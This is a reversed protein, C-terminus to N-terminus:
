TLFSCSSAHHAAFMGVPLAHLTLHEIREMADALEAFFGDTAKDMESLCLRTVQVNICQALSKKAIEAALEETLEDDSLDSNLLDLRCIITLFEKHFAPELSAVALFRDDSTRYVNYNHLERPYAFGGELPEKETYLAMSSLVNLSSLASDLMAIDLYQGSGTRDRQYIASLISIVALMGSMYDSIPIPPLIPREGNRRSLNLIGSEAILNLDHAARHRDESEQGYGSISCYILRDNLEKTKEYDLGLREMVGPRFNQVLVDATGILKKLINKGEEAKLDICVSKKNRNNNLYAASIGSRQTSVIRTYDGVSTNEIKIIEADQDGLIMTASPGSIMSTLDIIRIGKLAGAM